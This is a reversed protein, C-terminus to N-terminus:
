HMASYHKAIKSGSLAYDYAAVKGIAGKFFSNMDRTAVRFPATGNKPVVNFQALATTARLVGNKYIKVSGTPTAATIDRVNYVVTVFIWQGVTVSDQFYSGSGLGGTLNFAYGSIRNPRNESNVKSYMRFVYEQENTVGKGLWYVYGSGEQDPFQLTDPRMWAEITLAGTTSISLSDLDRVELYQDAGNFDAAVEHNPMYVAKPASTKWHYTGNAGRGSEDYESTQGAKKMPLFMVPKDALVTQDYTSLTAFASASSLSAAILSYLFCTM